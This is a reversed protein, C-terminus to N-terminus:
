LEHILNESIFNFRKNYSAVRVCECAILVDLDPGATSEILKRAEKYKEIDNDYFKLSFMFKACDLIWNGFIKDSYLPDILKMGKTTPIINRTSLDGHCFSPAMEEDDFKDLLAVLKNGNRVPNRKLHGIIREKYSEFQLNNMPKYQSYKLVLRIVSNIDLKADAEIFEMELRIPSGEFGVFCVVEPIDKEDQYAKYWAYEKAVTPGQKNVLKTIKNGTDFKIEGTIDPLTGLREISSGDMVNFEKGAAIMKSIVETVSRCGESYTVFQHASAFHYVGAGFADLMKEKENCSIVKGDSIEYNSYRKSQALHDDTIMPKFLYVLNLKSNKLAEPIDISPIIDGDVIWLDENDFVAQLITDIVCTTPEVIRFEPIMTQDTWSKAGGLVQVKGLQRLIALSKDIIADGNHRLWHKPTSFLSGMRENKGNLPITIM